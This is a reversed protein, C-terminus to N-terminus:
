NTRGQKPIGRSADTIVWTTAGIGWDGAWGVLTGGTTATLGWSTSGAGGRRRGTPPSCCGGPRRSPEPRRSTSWSSRLGASPRWWSVASCRASACAGPAPPAGCPWRGTVARGEEHITNILSVTALFLLAGGVGQVARVAVLVAASGSLGGVLSSAAYLLAALLFMRRRRLLDAARGGLLLLGGTAVVYASVVWQLDQGTFGLDAGIAPLAVYV